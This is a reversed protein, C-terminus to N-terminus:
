TGKAGDQLRADLAAIDEAWAEDFLREATEREVVIGALAQTAVVSRIIRDREEPTCTDM